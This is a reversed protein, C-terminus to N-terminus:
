NRSKRLTRGGTKLAHVIVSAVTKKQGGKFNFEILLDTKNHKRIERLNTFVSNVKALTENLINHELDDVAKKANVQPIGKVIPMILARMQTLIDFEANVASYNSNESQKKSILLHKIGVLLELKAKVTVNAIAQQIQAENASGAILLKELRHFLREFIDPLHELIAGSISCFLHCLDYVLPQTIRGGILKFDRFSLKSFREVLALSLM